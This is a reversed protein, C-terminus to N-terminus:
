LTPSKVIEEEAKATGNKIAEDLLEKMQRTAKEAIEAQQEGLKGQEEGLKGQKEGLKARCSAWNPNNTGPM